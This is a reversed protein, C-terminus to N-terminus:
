FLDEKKNSLRWAKDKAVATILEYGPLIDYSVDQVKQLYEDFLDEDLMPQAYYRALYIYSLQFKNESLELSRDFHKKAKKFKGKEFEKLGKAMLEEFSM